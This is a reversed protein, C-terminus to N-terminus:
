VAASIAQKGGLRHYLSAKLDTDFKSRCKGCCFSHTKGEYKLTCKPNVPEGSVPCKKEDKAMGTTLGLALVLATTLKLLKKM